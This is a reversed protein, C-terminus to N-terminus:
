GTFDGPVLPPDAEPVQLHGGQSARCGEVEVHRGSLARGAQLGLEAFDFSLQLFDKHLMMTREYDGHSAEIIGVLETLIADRELKAGALNTNELLDDYKKRYAVSNYNHKRVGTGTFDYTVLQANAQAALGATLGLFLLVKFTRNM